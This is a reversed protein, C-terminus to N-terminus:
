VAREGKEPEQGYNNVNKTGGREIIDGAKDMGIQVLPKDDVKQPVADTLMKVLEAPANDPLMRLLTCMVLRVEDMNDLGKLVPPIKSFVIPLVKTADQHKMLEELQVAIVQARYRDRESATLKLQDCLLANKVKADVLADQMHM